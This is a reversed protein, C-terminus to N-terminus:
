MGSCNCVNAPGSPMTNEFEERVRAFERRTDDLLSQKEDLERQKEDLQRQMEDLGRRMEDLQCYPDRESAERAAAVPDSNLRTLQQSFQLREEAEKRLIAAIKEVERRSQRFKRPTRFDVFIAERSKTKSSLRNTSLAPTFQRVTNERTGGEYSCRVGQCGRCWRGWCETQSAPHFGNEGNCLWCIRLSETLTPAHLNIHSHQHKLTPAHLNIRSPQTTITPTHHNTLSSRYTLTPAHPNTHSPQHTVRRSPQHTENGVLWLPRHM